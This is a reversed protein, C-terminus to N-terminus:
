TDAKFSAIRKRIVAKTAGLFDSLFHIYGGEDSFIIKGDRTDNETM